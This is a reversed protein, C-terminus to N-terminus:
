MLAFSLRTFGYSLGVALWWWLSRRAKLVRYAQDGLQTAVHVAGVAAVRRPRLM